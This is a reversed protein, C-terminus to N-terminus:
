SPVKGGALLALVAARDVGYEKALGHFDDADYAQAEDRRERYANLAKMGEIDALMCATQSAIFAVRESETM